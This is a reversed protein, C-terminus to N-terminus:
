ANEITKFGMSENQKQWQQLIKHNKYYGQIGMSILSLQRLNNWIPNDIYFLQCLHDIILYLHLTMSKNFLVENVILKVGCGARIQQHLVQVSPSNSSSKYFM